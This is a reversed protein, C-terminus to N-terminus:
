LEFKKELIKVVFKFNTIKNKEPVTVHSLQSNHPQPNCGQLYDPLNGPNM